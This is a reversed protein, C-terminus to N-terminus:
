GNINIYDEEDDDDDDDDDDGDDDDEDGDDGEDDDDDDYKGSQWPGPLPDHHLLSHGLLQVRAAHVPGQPLRHLGPWARHLSTVHHPWLTLDCM